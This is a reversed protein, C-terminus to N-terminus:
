QDHNKVSVIRNSGKGERYHDPICRNLLESIGWPRRYNKAFAVPPAASRTGNCKFDMHDTRKMLREYPLTARRRWRVNRLVKFIVLFVNAKTAGM